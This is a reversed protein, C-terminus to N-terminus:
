EVDSFLTEIVVTHGSAQGDVIKYVSVKVKTLYVNSGWDEDVETTRMYDGNADAEGYLDIRVNSEPAMDPLDRFSMAKLDDMHKKALNSSTYIMDLRNSNVASQAVIVVVTSVILTVLAAAVVVEVLTLGRQGRM